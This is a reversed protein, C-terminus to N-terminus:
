SSRDAAPPVAIAAADAWEDLGVLSGLVVAVVVGTTALARLLRRMPDTM